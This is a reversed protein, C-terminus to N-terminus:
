KHKNEFVLISLTVFINTVIDRKGLRCEWGCNQTLTITRYLLFIAVFTVTKSGQYSQM